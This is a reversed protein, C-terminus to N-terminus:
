WQGMQTFPDCLLLALKVSLALAVLHHATYGCPGGTLSSTQGCPLRQTPTGARGGRHKVFEARVMEGKGDSVTRAKLGQHSRM